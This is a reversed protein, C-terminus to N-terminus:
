YFNRFRTYLVTITEKLNEDNRKTSLSFNDLTKDNVVIQLDEKIIYEKIYVFYNNNIIEVELLYEKNLIYHFKTKTINKIQKFISNLINEIKPLKNRYVFNGNQANKINRSHKTKIIELIKDELKMATIYYQTALLNDALSDLLDLYDYHTVYGRKDKCLSKQLEACEEIAIVKFDDLTVGKEIMKEISGNQIGKVLM